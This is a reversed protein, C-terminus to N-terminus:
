TAYRRSRTRTSILAMRPLSLIAVKTPLRSNRAPRRSSVCNPYINAGKQVNFTLTVTMMTEIGTGNVEGDGQASHCDGCSFLAGLYLSRSSHGAAPPLIASTLIAQMKARLFPTLDDLRM